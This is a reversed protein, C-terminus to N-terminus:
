NEPFTIAVREDYLQSMHPKKKEEKRLESIIIISPSQTRKRTVQLTNKNENNRVSLDTM